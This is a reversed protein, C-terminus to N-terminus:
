GLASITLALVNAWKRVGDKGTVQFPPSEGSPSHMYPRRSPTVRRAWKALVQPVGIFYWARPLPQCARSEPTCTQALLSEQPWAGGGVQRPASNPSPASMAQHRGHQEQIAAPSLSCQPEQASPSGQAGAWAGSWCLGPGMRQGLGISETRREKM